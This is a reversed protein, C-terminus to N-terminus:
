QDRLDTGQPPWGIKGQLGTDSAVINSIRHYWTKWTERTQQLLNSGEISIFKLKNHYTTQPLKWKVPNNLCQSTLNQLSFLGDQRDIPWFKVMFVLLVQTLWLWHPYWFSQFPLLLLFVIETLGMTYWVLIKTSQEILNPKSWRALTLPFQHLTNTNYYQSICIVLATIAQAPISLLQKPLTLAIILLSPPSDSNWTMFTGDPRIPPDFHFREGISTNFIRLKNQTIAWSGTTSISFGWLSTSRSLPKLNPDSLFLKSRIPIWRSVTSRWHIQDFAPWGIGQLKWLYNEGVHYCLPSKSTRPKTSSWFHSFTFNKSTFSLSSM